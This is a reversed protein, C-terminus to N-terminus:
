WCLCPSPQHAIKRIEKWFLLEPLRQSLDSWESNATAEWKCVFWPSSSPDTGQVSCVCSILVLTKLVEWCLEWMQAWSVPCHSLSCWEEMDEEEVAPKTKKLHLPHKDWVIKIFFASYLYNAKMVDTHPSHSDTTDFFAICSNTMSPFFDYKQRKLACWGIVKPQYKHVRLTDWSVWSVKWFFEPPQMLITWALVTLYWSLKMNLASWCPCTELRILFTKAELSWNFHFNDINRSCSKIPPTKGKGPMFFNFDTCVWNWYEKFHCRCCNLLLTWHLNVCCIFLSHKPKLSLPHTGMDVAFHLLASTDPPENEGTLAQSILILEVWTLPLFATGTSASGPVVSLQTYDM